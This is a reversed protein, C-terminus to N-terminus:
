DFLEHAKKAVREGFIRCIKERANLQDRVVTPGVHIFPRGWAAGGSYVLMGKVLLHNIVTMIALEAGGGHPSNETAFVAGLKGALLPRHDTDFWKKLQWCMNAYYTPTGIVVASSEEIFSWDTAAEEKLNFLGVETEPVLLAGARIFDAVKETNGTESYFLISLKM